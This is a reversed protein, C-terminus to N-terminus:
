RKQKEPRNRDGTESDSPRSFGNPLPHVKGTDRDSYANAVSQCFMMCTLAFQYTAALM